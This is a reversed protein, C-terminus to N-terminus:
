HARQNLALAKEAKTFGLRQRTRFVNFRRADIDLGEYGFTYFHSALMTISTTDPLVM